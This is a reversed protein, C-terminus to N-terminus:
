KNNSGTLELILERRNPFQRVLQELDGIEHDEFDFGPSMTTGMLAYEGGKILKGGFWAGSPVIVQPFQGKELESGLMAIESKGSPHLILMEVPDGVYFHFIEDTPLRHIASITDPTLLFYIATCFSKQHQYRDPLAVKSINEESRYTERYYGGEIQLPKLNLFKIIDEASLM